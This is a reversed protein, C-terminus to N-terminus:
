SSTYFSLLLAVKDGSALAATFSTAASGLPAEGSWGCCPGPKTMPRRTLTLIVSGERRGM